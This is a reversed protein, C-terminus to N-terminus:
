ARESSEKLFKQIEEHVTDWESSEALSEWDEISESITYHELDTEIGDECRQWGMFDCGTEMFRLTFTLDPYEGCMSQVWNTPPSWATTFHYKMHVEKRNPSLSGEIETLVTPFDRPSIDYANWKTGWHAIQWEYWGSNSPSAWEQRDGVAPHPVSKGFDLLTKHEVCSGSDWDSPQQYHDRCFDRVRSPTGRVILTNECHNPM